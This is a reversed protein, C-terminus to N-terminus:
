EDKIQSEQFGNRVLIPKIKGRHNGQLIIEKGKITGGCALENKLIKALNGLEESKAQDLGSIITSIKGFKRKETRVEIKQDEKAIETCICAQIPM